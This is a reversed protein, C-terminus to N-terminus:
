RTPARRLRGGPKLGRIIETRGFRKQVDRLEIAPTWSPSGRERARATADQWSTRVRPLARRFLALGAVALAVGAIWPSATSVDIPVHLFNMRPTANEKLTRVTMEILLIMGLLMACGPLAALLYAPGIRQVVRGRVLPGHMILLGAIGGPAFMVVAIFLLGFYLQWVDTVDSLMVQLYTVLIAGIVPGIFYGTGGIFAALLVM